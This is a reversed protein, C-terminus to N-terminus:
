PGVLYSFSVCNRQRQSSVSHYCPCFLTSSTSRLADSRSRMRFFLRVALSLHRMSPWILYSRFQQSSPFPCIFVFSSHVIARRNSIYAAVKTLDSRSHFVFSVSSISRCSLHFPSRQSCFDVTCLLIYGDYRPLVQVSRVKWKDQLVEGSQM